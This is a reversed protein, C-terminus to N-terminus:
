CPGIYAWYAMKTWDNWQCEYQWGDTCKTTGMPVFIPNGHEDHGAQCKRWNDRSPDEKLESIFTCFDEESFDFGEAQALDVILKLTEQKDEQPLKAIKDGLEKDGAVRDFFEIVREM